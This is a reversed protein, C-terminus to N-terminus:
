LSENRCDFLSMKSVIPQYRDDLDEHFIKVTTFSRDISFNKLNFSDKLGSLENLKVFHKRNQNM